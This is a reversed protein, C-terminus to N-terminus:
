PTMTVLEVGGRGAAVVLTTSRAKVMNSSFGDEFQLEGLLTLGHGASGPASPNWNGLDVVQVGRAGAAVFALSGTVSVANTV